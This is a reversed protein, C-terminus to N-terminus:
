LCLIQGEELENVGEERLGGQQSLREIHGADGIQRAHQDLSNKGM